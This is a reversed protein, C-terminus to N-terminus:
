IRYGMMKKAIATLERKARETDFTLFSVCNLIRHAIHLNDKIEEKVGNEMKESIKEADETISLQKDEIMEMGEINEEEIQLNGIVINLKDVLAKLAEMRKVYEVNEREYKEKEINDEEIQKKHVNEVNRPSFVKFDEDEKNSLEKLYSNIKEIKFDNQSVLDLFKKREEDLVHLVEELVEINNNM